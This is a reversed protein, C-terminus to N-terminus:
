FQTLEDLWGASSSMLPRHLRAITNGEKKKYLRSLSNSLIAIANRTEKSPKSIRRLEIDLERLCNEVAIICYNIADLESRKVFNQTRM